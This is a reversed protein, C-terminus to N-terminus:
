LHPDYQGYLIAAEGSVLLLWKGVFLVHEDDLTFNNQLHYWHPDLHKASSLLTSIWM